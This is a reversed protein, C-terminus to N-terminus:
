TFFQILNAIFGFFWSAWLLSLCLPLLLLVALQTSRIGLAEKLALSFYIASWVWILVGLFGSIVAGATGLSIRIVTIPALFVWPLLSFASLIFIRKWPAKGLIAYGVMGFFLSALNWSALGCLSAAILQFILITPEGGQISFRSLVGLASIVAVITVAELPLPSCSPSGNVTESLRKFALNPMLLVDVVREWTESAQYPPVLSSKIDVPYETAM